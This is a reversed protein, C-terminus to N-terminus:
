ARVLCATSSSPASARCTRSRTASYKTWARRTQTSTSRRLPAHAPRALAPSRRASACFQIISISCLMVLGTNFLFSRPPAHPAASPAARGERRSMLTNGPSMPHVSFFLFNLGLKFNGKLTVLVLYFCFVAFAATGFLGFVEDMQIFMTNLLPTLPPDLFMYLLIHLLWMASLGAAIIGGAFNMFYGIVTVAWSIEANEGQPFVERLKMEETELSTLDSTLSALTRRNKRSRGNRRVDQQVARLGDVIEKAKKGIEGGLRIYETKTITTQPRFLYSRIMDTPLAILGVGAFVMFLLWGIVTALAICYIPFTTFTLFRVTTPSGNLGDCDTNSALQGFSGTPICGDVDSTTAEIKAFGSSLSPTNFVINGGIGYGIGLALAIALMAVFWYQGAEAIRAMANKESDSEYYFLTFPIIFTVWIIMTMYTYTWLDKMPLTYSCASLLKTQDCANRNAVDLPLMLVSLFCLSLGLLVVIKPFWAQNRDEPHAYFALVYINGILIGISVVVVILILFRSPPTPARASL